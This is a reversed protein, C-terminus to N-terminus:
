VVGESSDKGGYRWGIALNMWNGKVRPSKGWEFEVVVDMVLFQEHYKFCEFDPM